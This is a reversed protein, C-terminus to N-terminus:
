LLDERRTPAPMPGYIHDLAAALRGYALEIKLADGRAHNNGSYTLRDIVDLAELAVERTTPPPTM